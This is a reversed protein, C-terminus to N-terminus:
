LSGDFDLNEFTNSVTELWRLVLVVQGLWDSCVYRYQTKWGILVQAGNERAQCQNCTDSKLNSQNAASAKKSHNTLTKM